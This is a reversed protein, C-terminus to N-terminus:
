RSTPTADLSLDSIKGSQLAHWGMGAIMAANDTCLRLPPIALPLDGAAETLRTRLRSNCAVGGGAIIGNADHQDVAQLTKRILVDVVAEQFSAALDPLKEEWGPPLSGDAPREPGGPGPPYITYLVATKLGSFSFDLTDGSIMSRPLDFATPDGTEAMRDVLPGGPYGLGLIKAVKDFCEGAADDRTTGLVTHRDPADTRYLSTHGGSVVLSIIPYEPNEMQMLGAYIHSEIHNVGILPINLSLALAKAASITVLLAGVLGPTHSVAVADIDDLSCGAEELATHIVPLLAELHARSALEPIVGGWPAHLEAQSRVTNSLIERGERVVAAATEDCSSELGLILM